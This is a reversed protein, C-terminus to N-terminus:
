TLYGVGCAGLPCAIAQALVRGKQGSTAATGVRCVGRKTHLGIFYFVQRLWVLKIKDAQVGWLFLPEAFTAFFFQLM